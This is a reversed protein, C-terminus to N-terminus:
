DIYANIALVAMKMIGIPIEIDGCYIKPIVVAGINEGNHEIFRFYSIEISKDENLATHNYVTRDNRRIQEFFDQSLEKCFPEDVGKSYIIYNKDCLIVPCNTIDYLYDIVKEASAKFYKEARHKKIIMQESDCILEVSDGEYINFMQRAHSPISIRGADDIKRIFYLGKKDKFM